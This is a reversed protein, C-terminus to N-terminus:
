LQEEILKLREETGLQQEKLKHEKNRQEIDVALRHSITSWEEFYLCDFYLAIASGVHLSWHVYGYQSNIFEVSHLVIAAIAFFLFLAMYINPWKYHFARRLVYSPQRSLRYLAAILYTLAVLWAIAVSQPDSVSDNWEEAHLNFDTYTYGQLFVQATIFIPITIAQEILDMAYLPSLTILLTAVGIDGFYLSQWESSCYSNCDWGDEQDCLHFMVSALFVGLTILGFLYQRKSFMHWSVPIFLINSIVEFSRWGLQSPSCM